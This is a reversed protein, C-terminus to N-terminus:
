TRWQRTGNSDQFDEDVPRFVDGARKPISNPDVTGGARRFASDRLRRNMGGCASLGLRTKLGRTWNYRWM